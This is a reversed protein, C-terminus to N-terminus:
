FMGGEGNIQHSWSNKERKKKRKNIEHKIEAYKKNRIMQDRWICIFNAIDISPLYSVVADVM